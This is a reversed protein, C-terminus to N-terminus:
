EFYPLDLLKLNSKFFLLPCVLVKVFFPSLTNSGGKVLTRIAVFCSANIWDEEDEWKWEEIFEQIM